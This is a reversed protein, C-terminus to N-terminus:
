IRTSKIEKISVDRVNEQSIFFWGLRNHNKKLKRRRQLEWANMVKVDEPRSVGRIYKNTLIKKIRNKNLFGGFSLCSNELSYKKKPRARNVRISKIINNM